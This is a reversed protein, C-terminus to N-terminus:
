DRKIGLETRVTSRKEYPKKEPLLDKAVKNAMYQTDFNESSLVDTSIPEHLTFRNFVDGAETVITLTGNPRAATFFYLEERGEKTLEVHTQKESTQVDEVYSKKLTFVLEQQANGQPKAYNKATVSPRYVRVEQASAISTVCFLIILLLKM